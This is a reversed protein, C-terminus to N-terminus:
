RRWSRCRCRRRSTRAAATAAFPLALRELSGRSCRRTDRAVRDVEADALAETRTVGCGAPACRRPAPRWRARKLGRSTVAHVIRDRALGCRMAARAFQRVHLAARGLLPFHDHFAHAPGSVSRCRARCRWRPRTGCRRCSRCRAPTSPPASRVARGRPPRLVQAVVRPEDGERRGFIRLDRHGHQHLVAAEAGAGGRGDRALDHVGVQQRAQLGAVGRGRGRRSGAAFGGPVAGRLVAPMILMLVLEPFVVRRVSPVAARSSARQLEVTRQHHAQAQDAQVAQDHQVAGRALVPVHHQARTIRSARPATAITASACSCARLLQARGRGEDVDDADHQQHDDVDHACMPLPACRQSSRPKMRKWGESIMFSATGM